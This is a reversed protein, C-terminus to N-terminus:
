PVELVLAWAPGDWARATVLARRFTGRAPGQAARLIAPALGCGAEPEDLGHIGPLCGTALAELAVVAQLAGGAGLSEGLAGRVATLAVEGAREGLAAGVGAAERPDGGPSGCASLSVLDVQSPSLEADALAAEV